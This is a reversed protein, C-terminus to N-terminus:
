AKRKEPKHQRLFEILGRRLKTGLVAEDENHSLALMMVVDGLLLGISGDVDILGEGDTVPQWEKRLRALSEVVALCSLLPKSQTLM